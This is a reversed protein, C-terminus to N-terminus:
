RFAACNQIQADRIHALWALGTQSAFLARAAADAIPKRVHKPKLMGSQTANICSPWFMCNITMKQQQLLIQLLNCRNTFSLTQSLVVNADFKRSVTTPQNQIMDGLGNMVRSSVAAQTISPSPPRLSCGVLRRIETSQDPNSQFGKPLVLSLSPQETFCAPNAFM